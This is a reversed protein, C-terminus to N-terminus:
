STIQAKEEAALSKRAKARYDAPTVGSRLLVQDIPMSSNRLLLCVEDMKKRFCYDKLNVGTFGKFLRSIYKEAYGYKQSLDRLSVTRYHEDVYNMLGAIRGVSLNAPAKGYEYSCRLLELFLIKLYFEILLDSNEGPEIYECLLNELMERVRRNQGAHFLIYKQAPRADLAYDTLFKTVIGHKHLSRIINHVVYDRDFSLTFVIDESTELHQSLVFGQNM